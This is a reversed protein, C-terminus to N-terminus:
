HYDSRGNNRRQVNHDPHQFINNIQQVPGQTVPTKTVSQAYVTFAPILVIVSLVVSVCLGIVVKKM